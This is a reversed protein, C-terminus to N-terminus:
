LWLNIRGSYRTVRKVAWWSLPRDGVAPRRARARLAIPRYHLEHFHSQLRGAGRALLVAAALLAGAELWLAKDWAAAAGWDMWYQMMGFPNYVHVARFAQLLLAGLGFPAAD